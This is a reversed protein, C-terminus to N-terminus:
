KNVYESARRLLDSSDQLLGIAANCRRCLLGRINNTKHNHDVCLMYKLESQNKGCIACRNNQKSLADYYLEPTIAYDRKLKWKYRIGPNKDLYRRQNAYNRKRGDITKLRKRAQENRKDRNAVQWRKQCERAKRPNKEKYERTREKIIEKNKQYYEQSWRKRRDAASNEMKEVLM